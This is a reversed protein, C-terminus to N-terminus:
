GREVLLKVVMKHGREAAYSLPTQGWVDSSDAEVDDREILLKVVADYGSEAAYSLPTRGEEDRSDAEVDDREILLKVAANHGNEAAYSLLTWDKEDDGDVQPGKELLLRMVAELGLYSAILLPNPPRPLWADPLGYVSAWTQYKPSDTNCIKSSLLAIDQDHTKVKRVHSAWNEAAYSFFSGKYNELGNLNLYWLCREAM